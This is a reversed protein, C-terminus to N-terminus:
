RPSKISPGRKLWQQKAAAATNHAYKKCSFRKNICDNKEVFELFVGNKKRLSGCIGQHCGVYQSLCTVPPDNSRLMKKQENALFDRNRRSKPLIQTTQKPRTHLRKRKKCRNQAAKMVPSVSAWNLVIQSCNSPIVPLFGHEPIRLQTTKPPFKSLYFVFEVSESLNSRRRPSVKKKYFFVLQHLYPREFNQGCVCWFVVCLIVWVATGVCVFVVSVLGGMATPRSRGEPLFVFRPPKWFLAARPWNTAVKHQLPSLHFTLLCQM